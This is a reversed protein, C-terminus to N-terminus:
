AQEKGRKKQATKAECEVCFWKGEPVEEIGVCGYHFWENRCNGGDCAIMDDTAPEQCFCYPRVSEMAKEWWFPNQAKSNKISAMVATFWERHEKMGRTLVGDPLRSLLPESSPTAARQWHSLLPAFSGHFACWIIHDPSDKGPPDASVHFALVDELRGTFAKPLHLLHVQKGGVNAGTAQASAAQSSNLLQKDDTWNPDILLSSSATHQLTGTLLTQHVYEPNECTYITIPSKYNKNAIAQSHPTSNHADELRQRTITM